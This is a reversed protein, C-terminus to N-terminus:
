LAKILIKLNLDLIKKILDLRIWVQNFKKKYKKKLGHLVLEFM